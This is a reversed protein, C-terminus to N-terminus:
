NKRKNRDRKNYVKEAVAVLDRLGREELRELSQLKKRIDPATQNVYALIVAQQAKEMGRGQITFKQRILLSTCLFMSVQWCLRATYM